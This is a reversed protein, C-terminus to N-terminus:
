SRADGGQEGRLTRRSGSSYLGGNCSQLGWEELLINRHKPDEEWTESVSEPDETPLEIYVRRKIDAYLFACSVDLVMLTWRRGPSSATRSVLMRAAFFPPTGAFLDERPDGKAFEQAVLRCWVDDGKVTQVWRTKVFKGERDQMAEDRSVHVYVKREKIKQLEKMRGKVVKETDKHHDTVEQFLTNVVLRQM